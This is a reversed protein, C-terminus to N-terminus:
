NNLITIKNRSNVGYKMYRTKKLYEVESRLPVLKTKYIPNQYVNEENEFQTEIINLYQNRSKILNVHIGWLRSDGKYDIFDNVLKMKMNAAVYAMQIQRQKKKVEKLYPYTIDMNGEGTVEGKRRLINLLIKIILAKQTEQQQENKQLVGTVVKKIFQTQISKQQKQENKKQIEQKKEVENGKSLDKQVRLQTLILYYKLRRQKKTIKTILEQTKVKYKTLLGELDSDKQQQSNETIHNIDIPLSNKKKRKKPNCDAMLATLISDFKNHPKLISYRQKQFRLVKQLLKISVKQQHLMKLKSRKFVKQNRFIGHTNLFMTQNKNSIKTIAYHKAFTKRNLLRNKLKFTFKVANLKKIQLQKLYATLLKRKKFRIVNKNLDVPLSINKIEELSQSSALLNGSNLQSEIAQATTKFFSLSQSNVLKKRNEIGKEKLNLVRPSRNKTTNSIQRYQYQINRNFSINLINGHIISKVVGTTTYLDTRQKIM